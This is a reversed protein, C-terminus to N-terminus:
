SPQTCSPQLSINYFLHWFARQIHPLIQFILPCCSLIAKNNVGDAYKMKRMSCFNGKNNDVKYVTISKYSITIDITIVYNMFTKSCELQKWNKLILVLAITFM